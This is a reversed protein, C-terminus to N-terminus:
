EFEFGEKLLYERLKNRTRMLSSKVKSESIELLESIDKVSDCFFYRRLFINRAEEKEGRLFASITQSLLRADTDEEVSLSSPTCEDLEDLSLSSTDASRKQANRKQLKNLALNRAVKSIYAILSEPRAPPISNWLSIYTDNTNEESDCEDKLINRSIKMVISGFASQTEELAKENREFYLDLIETEKVSSEKRLFGNM